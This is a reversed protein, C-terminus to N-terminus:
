TVVPVCAPEWGSEWAMMPSSAAVSVNFLEQCIGAACAMLSESQPVVGVTNSSAVPVWRTAAAFM